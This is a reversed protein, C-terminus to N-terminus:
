RRLGGLLARALAAADARGRQVDDSEAITMSMETLAGYLASALLEPPHPEVLGTGLLERAGELVLGGLHRRDLERWRGWGLAIPGQLLVIHRYDPETCVDLFAEIGRDVRDFPDTATDVAARIRHAARHELEDFVAEFLGKKGDFHHYLAGRTLGASRVLEEASLDAYEREAFLRAATGLLTRRTDEIHKDRLSTM